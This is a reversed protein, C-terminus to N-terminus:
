RTRCGDPSRVLYTGEGGRYAVTFGDHQLRTVGTSNGFFHFGSCVGHPIRAPQRGRRATIVEPDFRLTTLPRELHVPLNETDAVRM